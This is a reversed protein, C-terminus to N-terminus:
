KKRVDDAWLASHMEGALVRGTTPHISPASSDPRRAARSTSPAGYSPRDPVLNPLAVHAPELAIEHTWRIRRSAGSSRMMSSATQIFQAMSKTDTAPRSRGLVETALTLQTTELPGQVGGVGGAV